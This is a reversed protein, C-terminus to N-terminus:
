YWKKVMESKLVMAGFGDLKCDIDHGDNAATWWIKSVPSCISIVAIHYRCYFRSLRM